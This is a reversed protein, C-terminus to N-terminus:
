LHWTEPGVEPQSFCFGPAYPWYNPNLLGEQHNQHMSLNSYRRALSQLWWLQTSHSDLGVRKGSAESSPVDFVLILLRPM